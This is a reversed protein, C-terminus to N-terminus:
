ENGESSAVVNRKIKMQIKKKSFSKGKEDISVFAHIHIIYIDTRQSINKAQFNYQKKYYININCKTQM